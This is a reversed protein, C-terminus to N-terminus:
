TLLRKVEAQHTTSAQEIWARVAPQLSERAPYSKSSLCPKKVFTWLREILHLHPSSTSGDM